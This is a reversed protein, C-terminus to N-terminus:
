ISFMKNIKFLFLILVIQFSSLLDYQFQNINFMYIIYQIINSQEMTGYFLCYRSTHIHM